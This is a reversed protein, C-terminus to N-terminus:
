LDFLSKSKRCEGLHTGYDKTGWVKEGGWGREHQLCWVKWWVSYTVFILLLLVFAIGVISGVRTTTGWRGLVSWRPITPMKVM